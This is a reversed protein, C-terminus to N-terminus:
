FGCHKWPSASRLARVFAIDCASKLSSYNMYMLAAGESIIKEQLRLSLSVVAFLSSPSFNKCIM